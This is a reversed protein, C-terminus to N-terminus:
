RKCTHKADYEGTYCAPCPAPLLDITYTRAQHSPAVLESPAAVTKIKPSADNSQEYTKWDAGDFKLLVTSSPVGFTIKNYADLVPKSFKPAPEPDCTLNDIVLNYTPSSKFSNPIMSGLASPALNPPTVRVELDRADDPCLGCVRHFPTGHECDPAHKACETCPKHLVVGHACDVAQEAPEDDIDDDEDRVHGVIDSKFQTYLWASGYVSGDLADRFMKVAEIDNEVIPIIEKPANGKTM